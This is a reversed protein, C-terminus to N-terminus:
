DQPTGDGGELRKLVDIIQDIEGSKDFFYDAGRKLSEDRNEPTPANTLMMIRSAPRVHKIEEILDIGSRDPMRVDLVVLDPKFTRTLEIARQADSAQAVLDVGPFEALLDALRERVITSDDVLLVKM